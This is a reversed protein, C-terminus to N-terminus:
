ALTRTGTIAEIMRNSMIESKLHGTMHYYSKTAKPMKLAFSNLEFKNKTELIDCYQEILILHSVLAGTM